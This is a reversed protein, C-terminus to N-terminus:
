FCVSPIRQFSRNVYNLIVVVIVERMRLPSTCYSLPCFFVNLKIRFMKVKFFHQIFLQKQLVNYIISFCYQFGLVKLLVFLSIPPAIYKGEVYSGERSLSLCKLFATILLHPLLSSYRAHRFLCPM